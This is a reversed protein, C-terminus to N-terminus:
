NLVSFMLLSIEVVIFSVANNWVYFAQVKLLSPFLDMAKKQVGLKTKLLKVKRTVWVMKNSHPQYDGCM